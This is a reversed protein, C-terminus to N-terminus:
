FPPLPDDADDSVLEHDLARTPVPPPSQQTKFPRYDDTLAMMVDLRTPQPDMERIFKVLQFMADFKKVNEGAIRRAKEEDRQNRLRVDEEFQASARERAREQALKEQRERKPAEDLWKQHDAELKAKADAFQQRREKLNALPLYTDQFEKEADSVDKLVIGHSPLKDSPRARCRRFGEIVAAISFPGESQLFDLLFPTYADSAFSASPFAVLLVGIERRVIDDDAQEALRGGIWLAEAYATGAMYTDIAALPETLEEHRMMGRTMWSCEMSFRVTYPGFQGNEDRTQGSWGALKMVEQDPALGTTRNDFDVRDHVTPNPNPQHKVIKGM